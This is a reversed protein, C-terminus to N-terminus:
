GTRHGQSSGPHQSVLVPASATGQLTGTGTAAQLPLVPKTAMRQQQAPGTALSATSQSATPIRPHEPVSPNQAM